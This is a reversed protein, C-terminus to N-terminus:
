VNAKLFQPRDVKNSGRTLFTSKTNGSCLNRGGVALVLGPSPHASAWETHASHREAGTDECIQQVPSTIASHLTTTWKSFSRGSQSATQVKWAIALSLCQSWHHSDRQVDAITETCCTKTDNPPFNSTALIRSSQLPNTAGRCSSIKVSLSRFMNKIAKFFVRLYMYSIQFISRINFCVPMDYPCFSHRVLQMNLSSAFQANQTM